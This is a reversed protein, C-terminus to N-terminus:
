WEVQAEGRMEVFTGTESTASMLRRYDDSAAVVWEPEWALAM